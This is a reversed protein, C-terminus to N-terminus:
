PRFNKQKQSKKPSFIERVGQYYSRYLDYYMVHWSSIIIVGIAHKKGQKEELM